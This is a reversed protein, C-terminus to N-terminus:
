GGGADTAGETQSCLSFPDRSQNILTAESCIFARGTVTAVVSDPRESDTPKDDSSYKASFRGGFISEQVWTEGAALEGDAALCAVKASTGTGCPSRDEVGGPCMVFNRCNVPGSTLHEGFEIHDVEAGDDGTIGQSRLTERVRKALQLLEDRHNLNLPIPLADALFFWNGGWAVDGTITGVGDVDISVKSRSRYSPVNQVSVTNDDHLHASVIGVPTEIRHVGTELMGLHRLTVALGMTGHGCMGLYGSNNFFIVGAACQPDNPQCLLAGVMADWGRPEEIVFKRFHDEHSRFRSVQESLTGGGLDPGGEIVVRTPEGETHSDIVKIKKM